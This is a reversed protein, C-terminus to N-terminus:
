SDVVKCLNKFKKALMTHVEEMLKPHKM